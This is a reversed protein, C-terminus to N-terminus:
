INIGESELHKKLSQRLRYLKTAINQENTNFREALERIDYLYFYRLVFLARKDQTLQGLFRDIMEALEQAEIENEPPNKNGFHLSNEIEELALDYSRNRKSAENYRLKNFSINRVIKCIYAKFSVPNTPPITDWLVLYTDNVCEECDELADLISNSLRLCMNGYKKSTENIASPDRSFYLKVIEKDDM